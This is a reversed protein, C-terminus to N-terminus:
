TFLFCSCPLLHSAPQDVKGWVPGWAPIGRFSKAHRCCDAIENRSMTKFGKGLWAAQFVCSGCRSWTVRSVKVQLCHSIDGNFFGGLSKAQVFRVGPRWRWSTTEWIVCSPRCPSRGGMKKSKLDTLLRNVSFFGDSRGVSRWTAYVIDSMLLPIRTTTAPSVLEGNEVQLLTGQPASYGSSMYKGKKPCRVFPYMQKNATYLAMIIIM